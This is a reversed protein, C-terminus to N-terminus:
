NPGDTAALRRVVCAYIDDVTQNGPMDACAAAFISVENIDAVVEATREQGRDFCDDGPTTCSRIIRLTEANDQQTKRIIRTNDAGVVAATTVIVVLVVGLLLVVIWLGTRAQPNM